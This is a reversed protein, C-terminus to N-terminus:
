ASKSAPFDRIRLDEPFDELQDKKDRIGGLQKMFFKAGYRQCQEKISRAWDLQFSRCNQGSEGGVIVWDIGAKLAPMITENLRPVAHASSNEIGQTAPLRVCFKTLDVSQLLPECSLFRTTAPIKLLAPVRSDASAQDEVSTGMWVNHPWEVLWEQPVLAPVNEPRKTLLLWDLMPTEDILNWLKWRADGMVKRNDDTAGLEFVDAMSACFVKAPVRAEAAKKNWKLPEAWHKEGFVRRQADRGWGFGYRGAFEAAYCNGCGPSIKTCGWWPNFTHDTWEIRSNASM